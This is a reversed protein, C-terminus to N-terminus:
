GLAWNDATNGEEEPQVRVREGGGEQKQQFVAGSRPSPAIAHSGHGRKQRRNTKDPRSRSPSAREDRELLLLLLLFLGRRTSLTNRKGASPRQTGQHRRRGEGRSLRTLSTYRFRLCPSLVRKHNKRAGRKRERGRRHHKQQHVVTAAGRYHRHPVRRRHREGREKTKVDLRAHRTDFERQAPRAIAARAPTTGHRGRCGYGLYGAGVSRPM